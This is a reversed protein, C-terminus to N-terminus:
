RVITPTIRPTIFRDLWQVVPLVPVALIAAYLASSVLNGFLNDTVNQAIGTTVAIFLRVMIAGGAAGAAAALPLIPSGDIFPKMGSIVFAVVAFAGASVGMPTTSPPIVDMLLGAFFGVIAANAPMRRLALAVVWVLTLPPVAGPLGALTLWTSEIVASVVLGLAVLAFRFNKM